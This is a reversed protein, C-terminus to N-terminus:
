QSLVIPVFISIRKCMAVHVEHLLQIFRCFFRKRCVKLYRCVYDELKAVDSSYEQYASLFVSRRRGSMSFVDVVGEACASELRLQITESSTHIMWAVSDSPSTSHSGSNSQGGAGESALSTSATSLTAQSELPGITHLLYVM